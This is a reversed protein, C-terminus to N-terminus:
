SAPVEAPPLMGDRFTVRRAAEVGYRGLIFGFVASLVDDEDYFIVPKGDIVVLFAILSGIQDIAGPRRRRPPPTKPLDITTNFETNLTYLLAERQASSGTRDPLNTRGSPAEM